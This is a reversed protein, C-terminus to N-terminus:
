SMLRVLPNRKLPPGSLRSSSSNEISLIEEFGQTNSPSPRKSQWYAASRSPPRQSITSSAAAERPMNVHDRAATAPTRYADAWYPGSARHGIGSARQVSLQHLTTLPRSLPKADPEPHFTCKTQTARSAQHTRAIQRTTRQEDLRTAPFSVTPFSLNQGIAAVGSRPLGGRIRQWDAGTRLIAGCGRACSALDFATTWAAVAVVICVGVKM